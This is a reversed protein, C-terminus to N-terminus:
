LATRACASAASPIDGSYVACSVIIVRCRAQPRTIVRRLRSTIWGQSALKLAPRGWGDVVGQDATRPPHKLSNRHGLRLSLFARDLARAEAFDKGKRIGHTDDLLDKRGPRLVVPVAPRPEETVVLSKERAHFLYSTQDQRDDLIFQLEVAAVVAPHALLEELFLEM